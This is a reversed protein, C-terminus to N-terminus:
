PKIHQGLASNEDISLHIPKASYLSVWCNFCFVEFLVLQFCLGFYGESISINSERAIKKLDFIKM